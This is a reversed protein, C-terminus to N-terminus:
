RNRKNRKNTNPRKRQLSSARVCECPQTTHTIPAQAFGTQCSVCGQPSNQCGGCIPSIPNPGESMERRSKYRKGGKVTSVEADAVVYDVSLQGDIPPVVSDFCHWHDASQSYGMTGFYGDGLCGVGVDHCGAINSANGGEPNCYPGETLLQSESMVKRIINILTSERLKIRSM